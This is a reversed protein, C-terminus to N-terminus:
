TWTIFRVGGPPTLSAVRRSLLLVALVRDSVTTQPSGSPAYSGATAKRIRKVSGTVRISSGTNNTTNEDGPDTAQPRAAVGAANRWGMIEFLGCELNASPTVSPQAAFADALIQGGGTSTVSVYATDLEYVSLGALNRSTFTVTITTAEGGVATRIAVHLYMVSAGTSAVMNMIVTWGAPLTPAANTGTSFLLVMLNGPTPTSDLTVATSTINSASNTNAVKSQIVGTFSPPTAHPAQIALHVGTYVVSGAYVCSSSYSGSPSTVQKYFCKERISTGDNVVADQMLTYGAPNTTMNQANQASTLALLLVDSDTEPTLSPITQNTGSGATAITWTSIPDYADQGSVECIFIVARNDTGSWSATVTTPESAGAVRVHLSGKVKTQLQTWGTISSIRHTDTSIWALLLNGQTPTSGFTASVSTPTGPDNGQASQVVAPAAM